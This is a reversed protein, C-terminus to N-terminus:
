ILLSFREPQSIKLINLCGKFELENSFSNLYKDETLVHCTALLHGLGSAPDLSHSCACPHYPIGVTSHRECRSPFMLLVVLGQLLLIFGLPRSSSSNQTLGSQVSEGIM